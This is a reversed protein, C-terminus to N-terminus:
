KWKLMTILSVKHRMAAAVIGSLFIGEGQQIFSCALVRHGAFMDKGKELAKVDATALNDVAMRHVFYGEVQENTIKPMLIRHEPRLQKFGSTPWAPDLPEPLLVAPGRFDNNRDYSKLRFRFMPFITTQIASKCLLWLQVVHVEM